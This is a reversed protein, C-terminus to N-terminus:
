CTEPLCYTQFISLGAAVLRSSVTFTGLYAIVGSSIMVDGVINVIQGDMALVSEHWRVKEDSLGGILQLYSTLLYIASRKHYKVSDWNYPKPKDM